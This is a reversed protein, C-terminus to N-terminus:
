KKLSLKRYAEQYYWPRRSGTSAPLLRDSRTTQRFYFPLPAQPCQATADPGPHMSPAHGESGRRRSPLGVVHQSPYLLQLWVAIVIDLTLMDYGLHQKLPERLISTAAPPLQMAEVGLVGFTSRLDLSWIVAAFNRVEDTEGRPRGFLQPLFDFV